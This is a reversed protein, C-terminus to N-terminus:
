RTEFDNELAIKLENSSYEVYSIKENNDKELRYYNDFDDELKLEDFAEMYAAICERSHTTAFIQVDFEKAATFIVKWLSVLVSYHFGNEIEDVVVIGNQTNYICLLIRFLTTIGDGFASLPVLKDYGVDVKLTNDQGMIIEKINQNPMTKNLIIVVANEQKNNQLNDYLKACDTLNTLQVNNISFPLDVPTKIRRSKMYNKRSIIIKNQNKKNNKMYSYNLVFNFNEKEELFLPTQQIENEDLPEEEIKISLEQEHENTSIIINDEYFMKNFFSLCNIESFGDFTLRNIYYTTFPNYLLNVAELITSKGSNNEGTILNVQKLNKIEFDKFCKFNKIKLDQIM